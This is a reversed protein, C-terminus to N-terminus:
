DSFAPHRFVDRGELVTLLAQTEAIAYADCTLINRDLLIFDGSMGPALAGTQQGRWCAAAANRTYGLVAEGVTIREGAGFVAARGRHRPPERTVATGIIEFPNLTTVPWDSSICFPAGADILSRFAYVHALRAAGVMAMTFDPIIPDWAAWLPQMNAMVGLGVGGSLLHVHADQFGPLVLRGGADIVRM